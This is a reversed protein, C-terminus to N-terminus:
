EPRSMPETILFFHSSGDSLGSLHFFQDVPVFYSTADSDTLSPIFVLAAVALRSMAVRAAVVFGAFAKELTIQFVSSSFRRSTVMAEITDLITQAM